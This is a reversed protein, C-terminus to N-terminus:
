LDKHRFNSYHCVWYLAVAMLGFLLGALAWALPTLVMTPHGLGCLTSADKWICAAFLVHALVVVLGFSLILIHGDQGLSQLIVIPTMTEM